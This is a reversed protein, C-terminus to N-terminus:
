TLARTRFVWVRNRGSPQKRSPVSYLKGKYKISHVQFGETSALKTGAITFQDIFGGIGDGIQQYTWFGDLTKFPTQNAAGGSTVAHLTITKPDGGLKTAEIHGIRQEVESIVEYAKKGM